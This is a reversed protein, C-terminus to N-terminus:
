ERDEDPDTESIDGVRSRSGIHLYEIDCVASILILIKIQIWRLFTGPGEIDCM